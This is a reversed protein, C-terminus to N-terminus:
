SPVPEHEIRTTNHPPPTTEVPRLVRHIKALTSDGVNEQVWQKVASGPVAELATRILEGSLESSLVPLLLVNGGIEPFPARGSAHKYQGFLSEIVDSSGLWTEAQPVAKVEEELYGLLRQWWSGWRSAEMEASFRGKIRGPTP